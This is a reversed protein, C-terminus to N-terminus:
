RALEHSTIGQADYVNVMRKKGGEDPSFGVMAREFAANLQDTGGAMVGCLIQVFPRDNLLIAGASNRSVVIGEAATTGVLALVQQASDFFASVTPTCRAELSELLARRRNAKSNRCPSNFLRRSVSRALRHM